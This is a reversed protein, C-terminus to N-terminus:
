HRMNLINWNGIKDKRIWVIWSRKEHTEDLECFEKVAESNHVPKGEDKEVTFSLGPYENELYDKAWMKLTQKKDTSNSIFKAFQKDYILEFGSNSTIGALLRLCAFVEEDEDYLSVYVFETKGENTLIQCQFLLEKPLAEIQRKVEEEIPEDEIEEIEPLKVHGLDVRVRRNHSFFWKDLCFQIFDIPPNDYMEFNFKEVNDLFFQRGIPLIFSKIEM